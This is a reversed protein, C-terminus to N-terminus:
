IRGHVTDPKELRHRAEDWQIPLDTATWTVFSSATMLPRFHKMIQVHPQRGTAARLAAQDQWASLTWFTRHLPRAILGEGGGPQRMRDVVSGAGAQPDAVTGAAAGGEDVDRAVAAAM